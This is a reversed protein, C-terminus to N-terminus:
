RAAPLRPRAPAPRLAAPANPNSRIRLTDLLRRHRRVSTRTRTSAAPQAQNRAPAPEALSHPPRATWTGAIPPHPHTSPPHTSLRRTWGSARKLSQATVYRRAEERRTTWWLRRTRRAREADQHQHVSATAPHNPPSCQSASLPRPPKPPKPNQTQPDPLTQEIAAPLLVSPVRDSEKSSAGPTGNGNGNDDNDTPGAQKPVM